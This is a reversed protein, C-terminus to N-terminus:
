APGAVAGRQWRPWTSRALWPWSEHAARLTKEVVGQRHRSLLVTCYLLAFREGGSSVGTWTESQGGTFGQLRAEARMGSRLGIAKSKGDKRVVLVLWVRRV